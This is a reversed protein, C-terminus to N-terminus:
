MGLEDIKSKILSVSNFAYVNYSRFFTLLSSFFLAVFFSCVFISSSPHFPPPFLPLIPSPFYCPFALPFFFTLISSLISPPLFSFARLSLYKKLFTSILNTRKEQVSQINLGVGSRSRLLLYGSTWHPRINKLKCRRWKTQVLLQSFSALWALEQNKNCKWLSLSLSVKQM